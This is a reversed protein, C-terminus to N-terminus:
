PNQFETKLGTLAKSVAQWDSGDIKISSKDQKEIMWAMRTVFEEASTEPLAFSAKADVFKPIFTPKNTKRAYEQYKTFLCALEDSEIGSGLMAELPRRDNESKLRFKLIYKEMNETDIVASKILWTGSDDKLPSSIAIVTKLPRNVEEDAVRVGVDPLAQAIRQLREATSSVKAEIGAISGVLDTTKLCLYGLTGLIVTGLIIPFEEKVRSLITKKGTTPM